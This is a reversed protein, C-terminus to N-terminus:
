AVEQAGVAHHERRLGMIDILQDIFREISLFYDQEETLPPVSFGSSFDVTGLQQASDVIIVREALGLPLESSFRNSTILKTGSRLVEFTRATLGIQGPHQIDFVFKSRQFLAAIEQKSFGATSMSSLFSANSPRAISKIFLLARSHFFIYFVVKLRNKDGFRRIANLWDARNSHLTGCFSIDVDKELKDTQEAQTFVSESFLPIYTLGYEACDNPDFSSKGDLWPLYKLYRPKNRASDWMYLHVRVGAKKLKQVFDEDCVEVGILLADTCEQKLISQVLSDLHRRKVAPFWEYFGLRYLIKVIITNKHREDFFQSEYGKKMLSQRIAQIYSFFNPGVLAIKTKM